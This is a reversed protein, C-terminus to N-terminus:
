KNYIDYGKDDLIAAIEGAVLKANPHPKGTTGRYRLDLIHQWENISYTYVCKTATCLPLFERADQAKMGFRLALNYM